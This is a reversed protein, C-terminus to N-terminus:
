HDACGYGDVGSAGVCRAAYTLMANAPLLGMSTTFALPAIARELAHGGAILSCRAAFASASCTLTAWGITLAAACTAGFAIDALLLMAATEARVTAATRVPQGARVFIAAARGFAGTTMADNGARFTTAGRILAAGAGFAARCRSGAAINATSRVLATDVPGTTRIDAGAISMAASFLLLALVSRAAGGTKAVAAAAGVAIGADVRADEGTVEAAILTEVCRATIIPVAGECLATGVPILLAAVAFAHRDATAVLSLEAGRCIDTTRIPRGAIANAAIGTLLTAVAGALRLLVDTTRRVAGAAVGTAAIALL